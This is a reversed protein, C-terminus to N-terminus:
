VNPDLLAGVCLYAFEKPLNFGTNHVGPHYFIPKDLEKALRVTEEYIVRGKSQEGVAFLIPKDRLAELPRKYFAILKWDFATMMEKDPGINEIVQPDPVPGREDAFIIPPLVARLGHSLTRKGEWAPEYCLLRRVLRPHQTILDMGIPGGLSHAIVYAGLAKDVENSFYEILFKADNVHVACIDKLYEKDAKTAEGPTKTNSTLGSRVHGRRDYAVVHFSRSMAEGCNVYFDADTSGGHILLLLPKDTDGSERVYLPTGDFSPITQERYYM